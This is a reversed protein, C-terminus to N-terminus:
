SGQGTIHRCEGSVERDNDLYIDCASVASRLTKDLYIDCASVASRWIM